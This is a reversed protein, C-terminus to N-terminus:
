KKSGFICFLGIFVALLSIMFILLVINKQRIKRTLDM